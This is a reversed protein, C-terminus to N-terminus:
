LRATLCDPLYAISESIIKIPEGGSFAFRNAVLGTGILKGSGKAANEVPLIGCRGPEKGGEGQGQVLQVIVMGSGDDIEHGIEDFVKM